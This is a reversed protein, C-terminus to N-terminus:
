RAIRLEDTENTGVASPFITAAAHGDDLARRTRRVGFFTPILWDSGVSARLPPLGLRRVWWRVFLFNLMGSSRMVFVLSGRRSLERLEAVAEAPVQVPGFWRDLWSRRAPREPTPSPDPGSM